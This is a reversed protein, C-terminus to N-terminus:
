KRELWTLREAPYLGLTWRKRSASAFFFYSQSGVLSHFVGDAPIYTDGKKELVDHVQSLM